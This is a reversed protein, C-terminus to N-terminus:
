PPLTCCAVRCSSASHHLMSCVPLLLQVRVLVPTVIARLLLTSTPLQVVASQRRPSLYEDPSRIKVFCVFANMSMEISHLLWSTGAAFCNPVAGLVGGPIRVITLFFFDMLMAFVRHLQPLPLDQLVITEGSDGRCPRGVFGAAHGGRDSCPALAGASVPGPAM